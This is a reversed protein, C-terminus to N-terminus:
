VMIVKPHENVKLSYHGSRSRKDNTWSKVSCFTSHTFKMYLYTPINNENRINIKRDILNLIAQIRVSIM